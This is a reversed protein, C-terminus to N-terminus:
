PRAYEGIIQDIQAEFLPYTSGGTQLRAKARTAFQKAGDETVFPNNTTHIMSIVPPLNSGLGVEAWDRTYARAERYAPELLNAMVDRVNLTAAELGEPSELAELDVDPYIIHRRIRKDPDAFSMLRLNVLNAIFDFTQPATKMTLMLDRFLGRYMSDGDGDSAPPIGDLTVLRRSLEPYQLAFAFAHAFGSGHALLYCRGIRLQNIFEAYDEVTDHLPDARDKRRMDSGGFGARSPAIVRLGAARLAPDISRPLHRGHVSCHFFLVPTGGVKGRVSYQVLRGDSLTLSNEAKPTSRKREAVSDLSRQIKNLEAAVRTQGSVGMKNSLSKIQSRVTEVSKGLAVAIEAVKGGRGMARLVQIESDSIKLNDKLLREIAPTIGYSDQWIRVAMEGDPREIRQLLRLSSDEDEAWVPILLFDETENLWGMLRTQGEADPQGGLHPELQGVLSPGGSSAGIAIEVCAMEPANEQQLADMQARVASLAIQSHRELEPISIVTDADCRLWDGILKILKEIHEQETVCEYLFLLKQAPATTM